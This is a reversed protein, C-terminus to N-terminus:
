KYISLKDEGNERTITIYDTYNLGESIGGTALINDELYTVKYTQGEAKSIWGELQYTKSTQFILDCYNKVFSDMTGSFVINKCDDTLMNYATAYDKSNCAKVFSEIINRDEEADEKSIEDGSIITEEPLTTDRYGESYSNSVNNREEQINTKIIYNLVRVFIILFVIISVILLIKTRNQNFYRILKRM